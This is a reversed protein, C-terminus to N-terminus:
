HKNKIFDVKNENKLKNNKGFFGVAGYPQEDGNKHFYKTPTV